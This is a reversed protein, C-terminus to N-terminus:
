PNKPAPARYLPKQQLPAGPVRGPMVSRVAYSLCPLRVLAARSSEDDNQLAPAGAGM